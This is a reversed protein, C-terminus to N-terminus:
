PSAPLLRELDRAALLVARTAEDLAHDDIRGALDPDNALITERALQLRRLVGALTTVDTQLMRYQLEFAVSDADNIARGLNALRDRPAGAAEARQYAQEAADAKARARALEPDLAIVPDIRVNDNAIM